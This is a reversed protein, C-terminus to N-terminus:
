EMGLKNPKNQCEYEAIYLDIAKLMEMDGEQFTFPAALPLLGGIKFAALRITMEKLDILVLEMDNEKSIREYTRINLGHSEADKKSEKDKKFGQKKLLEKANRKLEKLFKIRMETM